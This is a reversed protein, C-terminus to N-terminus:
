SKNDKLFAEIARRILESVSTGTKASLAKLRALMQEPFYYNTRKMHAIMARVM